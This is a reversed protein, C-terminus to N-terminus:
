SLYPKIYKKLGKSKLWIEFSPADSRKEGNQTAKKFEESGGNTGMWFECEDDYYDDPNNEYHYSFGDIFESNLSNLKTNLEKLFREYKDIENLFVKRNNYGVIFCRQSDEDSLLKIDDKNFNNPNIDYIDDITTELEDTNFFLKSYKSKLSKIFKLVKRYEKLQRNKEKMIDQSTLKSPCYIKNYEELLEKRKKLYEAQREGKEELKRIIFKGLGEEAILYKEFDIM